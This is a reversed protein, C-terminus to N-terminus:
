RRTTLVEGHTKLSFFNFIFQGQSLGLNNQILAAEHESHRCAGSTAGARAQSVESRLCAAVATTWCIDGAAM